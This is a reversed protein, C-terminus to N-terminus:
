NTCLNRFPHNSAQAVGLSLLAIASGDTKLTLSNYRVDPMTGYPVTTQKAFNTGWIIISSGSKFTLVCAYGASIAVVGSQTEIPRPAIATATTAGPSAKTIFINSLKNKSYYQKRLNFERRRVLSKLSSVAVFGLAV